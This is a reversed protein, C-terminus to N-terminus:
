RTDRDVEFWVAGPREDLVGWDTAVEQVIRLGFGAEAAGRDVPDVVRVDAVTTPQEIRIRVIDETAVASFVIVDDPGLGGHRVANDILESAALRVDDAIREGVLDTLWGDLARRATRAAEPSAPLERRIDTMMGLSTAFRNATRNLM